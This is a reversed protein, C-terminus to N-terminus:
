KERWRVVRGGGWERGGRQGDGVGVEESHGGGEELVEELYNTVRM